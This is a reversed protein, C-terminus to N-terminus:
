KVKSSGPRQSERQRQNKYSKPNKLKGNEMAIVTTISKNTSISQDTPISEMTSISKEVAFGKKLNLFPQEYYRFSIESVIATTAFCLLFLDCSFHLNTLNLIRESVDRTLMHLLYMGYSIVGIRRIPSYTFFKTLSHQEQIVCSALLLSMLLHIILRQWGPIGIEGPLNCVLFTAILLALATWKPYLFRSIIDFTKQSHLLHALLVGLFIPTFTIQLIELDEYRLGFWNYLQTDLLRFNVLQNIGIAIVILTFLVSTKTIFKEVLSWVFYFQEETALSWTVALITANHRWNSTHTLYFPLDNFFPKAMDTNPTVFLLILGLVLLLGYYLPFIRLGRRMYFRWLSIGGTKDKERLLLTVILFGSLIFFMDVGLYGRGLAPILPQGLYTHHWIVAIISLCRIGDLSRFFKRSTFEAHDPKQLTSSQM